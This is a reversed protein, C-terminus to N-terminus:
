TPSATETARGAAPAEVLTPERTTRYRAGSQTARNLVAGLIDAGVDQLRNVARNVRRGRANPANVVLLTGDAAAALVAADSATLVSPADVVVVDALERLELLCARMQSSGLLESPDPPLPGSPLLRLGRIDTSELLEDVVTHSGTLRSSLGLQNPLGLMTHLSPSRLDADVVVVREGGQAAVVALNLATTSKGDGAQPSTVVISRLPREAAMSLLASRLLRFSEATQSVVHARGNLGSVAGPPANYLTLPAGEPLLPATALPRLGTLQAVRGPSRLRDDVVEVALAIGTAGILGLMAGVLASRAPRPQSPAEPPLAAQVVVLPDGSRTEALRVEDLSRATGVYAQQFLTLEAQVRALEADRVASLPQLRLAEVQRTREAVDVVAQEMQKTLVDKSAAFREARVVRMQQIFVAALANALKAAMEPEENYVRVEILQTDRLPQVLIHQVLESYSRGINAERAAAEIVPPTKLMEAYTRTMREASLLEDYRPTEAGQQSPVVMIKGASEYVKPQRAAVAYGAAGGLAAALVCLWSWRLIFQWLQTFTM